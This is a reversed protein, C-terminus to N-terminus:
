RTRPSFTVDLPQGAYTVSKADLLTETFGANRADAALVINLTRDAVMGPFSGNRTGISLTRTADNWALDYTARQGREYAYTENDDEYITFKADAGPYIRIEYPADPKETAYQVAPGMPVITGARVYLPLVNLPCNKEVTRGGTFRENTWFDYWDAGRPLYTTMSNDLAAENSALARFQGPTRWALRLVRELGGQFYELKVAVRQDEQLTVKASRYRSASQSWEQAVLKGDLWLRAGDDVEFGIEYEGDEPATITGEWRASFYEFGDLGPPPDALPPGPWRHDVTADVADGAPTEFNMGEFYQVALGPQGEPTRLYAGPITQAPPLGVNYMARTVPHVLFSPGFM